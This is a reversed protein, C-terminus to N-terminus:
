KLRPELWRMQAPYEGKKPEMVRKAGGGWMPGAAWWTWGLYVDPNSEVHNLMNQTAAECLPNDGGNFEGLFGRKKHQKAWDTFAKMREPDGMLEENTAGVFGKDELAQFLDVIMTSGAEYSEGLRKTIEKEYPEVVPDLAAWEATSLDLGALVETLDTPPSGAFARLGASSAACSAGSCKAVLSATPWTSSSRFSTSLASTSSSFADASAGRLGCVWKM